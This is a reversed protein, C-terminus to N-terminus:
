VYGAEGARHLLLTPSETARSDDSSCIDRRRHTRESRRLLRRLAFAFGSEPLAIPRCGLDEPRFWMIAFDYAHLRYELGQALLRYVLRKSQYGGRCPHM